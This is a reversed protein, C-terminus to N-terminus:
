PSTSSMWTSSGSAGSASPALAYVDGVRGGSASLLRELVGPADTWDGALTMSEGWSVDFREFGLAALREVCGVAAEGFALTIEFSLAPLPGSLGSLVEQEFGEVDIKCFDPVGHREILEDLTTLPVVRRERWHEAPFLGSESVRERWAESMSSITSWDAVALEARKAGPPGVGVPEVVVRGEPFRQELAAVCRPQPEIAVVRRAGLRLFVDTHGGVNAGVDFCLSGPRVFERYHAVMRRRRRWREPARAARTLANKAGLLV